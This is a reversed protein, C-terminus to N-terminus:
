NEYTEPIHTKTESVVASPYTIRPSPLDFSDILPVPVTFHGCIDWSLKIGEKSM